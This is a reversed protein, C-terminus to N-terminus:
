KEVGSEHTFEGGTDGEPSGGQGDPSGGTTSESADDPETNRRSTVLRAAAVRPASLVRRSGDPRVTDYLESEDTVALDGDNTALHLLGFIEVPRRLSVPLQSFLEGASCPGDSAGLLRLRSRLAHLSPGGQMMLDRMSLQDPQHESVDALPAPYTRAEGDHFRERLLAVDIDLPLLAMPVRVKAGASAMWTATESELARLTADLERDRTLDHTVIFERLAGTARSRESIVRSMGHRILSVTGRLESRDSDTLIEEALPHALLDTIDASLQEVLAQDRLLDFAGMFARGEQTAEELTDVRQLYEDIIEGAPRDEARLSIFIQDRLATFLESVRAFDSPLGAVLETLEAFGQLMYDATVAPMDGGSLLRDREESLRAIESDLISVRAARDPHAARNFRRVQDLITAIRHESLTARDKTLQGVLRLADQAHSTLSYQEAGDEALSRILWQDSVWKRCLDRGSGAPVERAPLGALRLEDLFADVQDHLRPAPIIPAERSFSSRFVSIVVAAHGQHLLTLTPQEFATRVRALEGVIGSVLRGKQLATLRAGIPAIRDETGCPARM